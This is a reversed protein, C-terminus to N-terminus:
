KLVDPSVRLVTYPQLMLINVHGDRGECVGLIVHRSTVIGDPMKHLGGHAPLDKGEKDVFETYDVVVAMRETAPDFEVLWANVANAHTGVYLRRNHGEIISFYGEGEPATQKPIAYATAQLWAKPLPEEAQLSPFGALPLLALLCCMNWRNM